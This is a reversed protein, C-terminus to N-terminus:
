TQYWRAGFPSGEMCRRLFLGHVQMGMTGPLDM